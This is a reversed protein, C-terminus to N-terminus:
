TRKATDPLQGDSIAFFLDHTIIIVSRLVPTLFLTKVCTARLVSNVYPLVRKHTKACKRIQATISSLSYVTPKQIYTVRFDGLSYKGIHVVMRVNCWITSSCACVGLCWRIPSFNPGYNSNVDTIM